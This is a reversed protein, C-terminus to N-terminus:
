GRCEIGLADQWRRPDEVEAFAAIGSDGHHARRIDLFGAEALEKALSAYDWLWLHGSDGFVHKVYGVFSRHRKVHGMLTSRIFTMARDEATSENYSEIMQQLDPLVVRFVGGKALLDRCNRLAVRLEDLALHEFVHSCYLLEATSSACPLGRVIDGYRVDPPFRGHPGSPVLRGVLPLRQLRLRPSADYNKWSPPCCLGCGFQVFESM